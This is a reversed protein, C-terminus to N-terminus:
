VTHVTAEMGRTAPREVLCCDVALLTFRVCCVGQAPQQLFTVVGRTVLRSLGPQGDIQVNANGHHEFLLETIIM